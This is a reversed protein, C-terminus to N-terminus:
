WVIRRETVYAFVLSAGVVSGRVTVKLTLSPAASLAAAVRSMVTAATSSGGVTVVLPPLM